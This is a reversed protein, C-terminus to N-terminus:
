AVQHYDFAELKAATSEKNKVKQALLTLIQQAGGMGFTYLIKPSSNFKFFESLCKVRGDPPDLLGRNRRLKRSGDSKGAM